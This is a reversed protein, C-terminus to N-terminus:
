REEEGSILGQESRRVAEQIVEDLPLPRKIADICVNYCYFASMKKNSHTHGHINLLRNSTSWFHPYHTFWLTIDPNKEWKIKFEEGMYTWGLDVLALAKAASMHNGRMFLHTGPIRPALDLLNERRGLFTDGLHIFITPEKAGSKVREEEIDIFLNLYAANMDEASDFGRKAYIFDAEHFFHEDSIIFMRDYGEEFLQLTRKQQDAVLSETSNRGLGM